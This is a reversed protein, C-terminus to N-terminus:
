STYYFLSYHLTYTNLNGGILKYTFTDKCPELIKEVAQEEQNKDKEKCNSKSNNQM